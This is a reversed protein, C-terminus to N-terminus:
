TADDNVWTAFDHEDDDNINLVLEPDSFAVGVGSRTATYIDWDPKAGTRVSYFITRLDATLVPSDEQEVTNLNPVLELEFDDDVSARTAQYLDDAGVAGDTRASSLYVTLMDPTFWAWSEDQPSNLSTFPAAALFAADTNCAAASMSDIAPATDATPGSDSASAADFENNVTGGCGCALIATYIWRM